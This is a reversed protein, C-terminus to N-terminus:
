KNKGRLVILPRKNYVSEFDEQNMVRSMASIFAVMGDIKQRSMKKSPAINDNPDSRVILNDAMWSLVPNGNHALQKNVILAEIQKMPESLTKSGQRVEIMEFGDDQLKLATETANWPDFGIEAIKYLKSLSHIKKQIHRYDVVNGTTAEIYGQDRWVDYPCRDDKSKEAINEGPIWFFPLIKYIGTEKPPPFVLVFATIDLKSSLDLAGYCKQGKLLDPNFPGNCADWAELDIWKEESGVWENCHKRRFTTQQRLVHKAKSAKRQLDDVFQSVGLNPNAKIWVKEDRWDDGEDLNYILPFYTDDEIKGKLINESYEHQEYCVSTKDQGATTIYIILPQERGGTGTELVDMMGGNPHEHLEDVLGCSVSFGDAKKSDSALPEFKSYTSTVSLNNLFVSIKKSLGPSSEALNRACNFIIKAQDKKTAAAYVQAGREGDADLMYLGVGALTTSKANKRGVELYVTRYRRLGTELSRWGFISGVKFKQWPELTFRQGAWKGEWLRLCGFFDFVYQAEYPDFFYGREPAHELDDLHRQCALKILKGAIIKGDLVKEAYDTVHDFVEVSKGM